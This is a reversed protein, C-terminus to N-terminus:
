PAAKPDGREHSCFASCWFQPVCACGTSAVAVAGGRAHLGMGGGASPQLATRRKPSHRSLMM